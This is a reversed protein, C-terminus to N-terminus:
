VPKISKLLLPFTEALKEKRIDICLSNHLQQIIQDFNSRLSLLRSKQDNLDRTDIGLKNHDEIQKKIAELQEDIHQVAEATFNQSFCDEDLYCAIFKKHKAFKKLFLTDMIESGVWGSLLSQKSVIFLVVSAKKVSREIFQEIDEGALMATTDIIVPIGEKELLSKITFAADQSQHNYSIFVNLEDNADYDADADAATFLRETKYILLGIMVIFFGQFFLLGTDARHLNAAESSYNGFPQLLLTLIVALLYTLSIFFVINYLITEANPLQFESIKKHRLYGILILINGPLINMALWWWAAGADDGYKGLVTQLFIILILFVSSFVWLNFLKKIADALSLQM